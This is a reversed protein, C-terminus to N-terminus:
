KGNVKTQIHLMGQKSCINVEQLVCLLRNLMWMLLVLSLLMGPVSTFSSGCAFKGQSIANQFATCIMHWMWMVWARVIPIMFRTVHFLMCHTRLGTDNHNTQYLYFLVDSSQIDQPEKMWLWWTMGDLTKIM